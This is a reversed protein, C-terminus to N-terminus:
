IVKTMHLVDSNLSDSLASLGRVARALPSFSQLGAYEDVVTLVYDFTEKVMTTLKPLEKLITAMTQLPIEICGDCIMGEFAETARGLSGVVDDVVRDFSSSLDSM